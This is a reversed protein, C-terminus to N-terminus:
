GVNKGGWGKREVGWLTKKRQKKKQNINRKKKRPVGAIVWCSASGQAMLKASGDRRM